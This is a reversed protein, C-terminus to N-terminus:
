NDVKKTRGFIAAVDPGTGSYSKRSSLRSKYSIRSGEGFSSRALIEQRRQEAKLEFKAEKAQMQTKKAEIKFGERHLKLDIQILTSSLATGINSM